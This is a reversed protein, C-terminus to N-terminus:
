KVLAPQERHAAQWYWDNLRQQQRDQEVASARTNVLLERPAPNRLKEALSAYYNGHMTWEEKLALSIGPM